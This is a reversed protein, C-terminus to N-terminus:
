LGTTGGNGSRHRTYKCIAVGVVPHIRARRIRKRELPQQNGRGSVQQDRSRNRGLDVVYSVIRRVQQLGGSLHEASGTSGFHDRPAARQNMKDVQLRPAIRIKRNISFLQFSCIRGDTTTKPRSREIALKTGDYIIEASLPPRGIEPSGPSYLADQRNVM